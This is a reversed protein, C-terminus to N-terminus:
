GRDEHDGEAVAGLSFLFWYAALELWKPHVELRTLRSYMVAGM